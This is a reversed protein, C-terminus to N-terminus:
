HMVLFKATLCTTQTEVRVFYLGNPLDSVDISFDREMGADATKVIQGKLDSIVITGM